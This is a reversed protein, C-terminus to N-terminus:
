SEFGTQIITSYNGNKFFVHFGLPNLVDCIKLNYMSDNKKRNINVINTYTYTAHYQQHQHRIIDCAQWNTASDLGTLMWRGAVVGLMCQESRGTTVLPEM